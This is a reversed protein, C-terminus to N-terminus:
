RRPTVYPLISLTESGAAFSARKSELSLPQAFERVFEKDPDVTLDGRCVFRLGFGFVRNSL